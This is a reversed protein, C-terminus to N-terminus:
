GFPTLALRPPVAPGVSSRSGIWGRWWAFPARGYSGCRTALNRAVAMLDQGGAILERTHDDLIEGSRRLDPGGREITGATSNPDRTALLRDEGGAGHALASADVTRIAAVVSQLQTFLADLREHAEDVPDPDRRAREAAANLDEAAPCGGAPRAM